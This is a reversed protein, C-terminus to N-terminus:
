STVSPRIMKLPCSMVWAGMYSRARRPMPMDKWRGGVMWPRGVPLSTSSQPRPRSISMGAMARLTCKSWNRSRSTLAPKEPPSILRESSKCSMAWRGSRSSKSSGSDPTSRSFMARTPLVTRWRSSPMGSAQPAVRRSRSRLREVLPSIMVWVPWMRSYTLACRPWTM